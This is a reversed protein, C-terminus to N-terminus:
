STQCGMRSLNWSVGAFTIEELRRSLQLVLATDEWIEGVRVFRWGNEVNVLAVTVGCVNRM